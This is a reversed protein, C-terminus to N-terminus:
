STNHPSFSFHSVSSSSLSTSFAESLLCVFLSQCLSTCRSSSLSSKLIKLWGCFCLNTQLLASLVPCFLRMTFGCWVGSFCIVVWLYWAFGNWFHHSMEKTWCSVLHLQLRFSFELVEFVWWLFPKSHHSLCGVFVFVCVFACVCLYFFGWRQRQLMWWGLPSQM